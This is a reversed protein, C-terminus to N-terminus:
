EGIGTAPHRPRALPPDGPLQLAGAAARPILVPVDGAPMQALGYIGAAGVQQLRVRCDDMLMLDDPWTCRIAAAVTVVTSDAAASALALLHHGLDRPVGTTLAPDFGSM